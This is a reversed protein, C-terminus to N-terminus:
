NSHSDKLMWKAARGLGIAMVSHDRHAMDYLLNDVKKKKQVPNLADSMKEMLLEELDKKTAAKYKKLYSLVLGKYFQNDLARHKIYKAKEELTSAVMSSVYLNPRRGEILKQSKLSKFETNSLPKGKQVKDLAIVDMLELDSRSLLLQTYREDIVKGFIRVTVKQPESLDYEPLPFSRQRQTLFMKRIGGGITDIMNLNVMATALFPNRYHDPPADMRIVNEVTGPIFSGRNMLLVTDDDEVVNIRSKLRYDQHAICNHLAERIVWPEYKTVEMPFLQDNKLYRYKLNRIKSFVAEVSTIFPPGFHEYDKDIGDAGRLIWSIRPDYPSLFHSSEEKGLLLIAANTILGSKCVKAKNLFTMDNWHNIEDTLKPNKRLYQERAFRIADPDLDNLTADHCVEASWDSEVQCRITEIESLQLPVLSEGDRGWYHGEWSTPIGQLAAPIQFLLVRGQSTKLEHIEIFTIGNTKQRIELKLNDLDPRNPRYNSGVIVRPKNQVGFVLWGCDRCKLNAENSLASFYEGLKDFSYSNKAKKFEVWETEAPLALLEKLLKQLESTTM